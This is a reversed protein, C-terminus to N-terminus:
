VRTLVPPAALHARLNSALEAMVQLKEALPPPIEREALALQSHLLLGALTSKLETEIAAAAAQHALARERERRSLATRIERAVRQAGSLAFNVQLPIALGTLEWLVDAGSPDADVMSEDVVVSAYEGHKLASIAARRSGAVEFELGLLGTLAAACNQSGEIGTVLLVKM